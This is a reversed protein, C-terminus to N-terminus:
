IHILSLPMDAADRYIPPSLQLQGQTVSNVRLGHKAVQEYDSRLLFHVEQAAKALMLGYFGGIAGTGLIGIRPQHM